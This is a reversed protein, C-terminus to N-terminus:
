YKGRIEKLGLANLRNYLTALSIGLNKAAARKGSVNDEHKSLEELIRHLENQLRSKKLDPPAALIESHIQNRVGLEQFLAPLYRSSIVTADTINGIFQLTNELERVNGPWYYNMFIEKIEASLQLPALPHEVFHKLLLQEATLIIDQPRTRLPPIVLQSASLRYFLDSRFREEAMRKELDSNTAAIIRIDVRNSKESGVPQIEGSQLVRLLKAQLGMDMDGIEDLFLTGKDALEVLGKKGGKRAGSFAGDVYGFLESELLPGPIAACNVAVFHQHMRPSALHMAHAFLEKGTGSEGRILVPIDAAGLKAALTKVSNIQPSHGVIDKFTYIASHEKHVKRLLNSYRIRYRGLKTQLAQVESVDRVISIGGVCSNGVLIPHMDTLYEINDFTRSAGLMAKQARMVSGLRSGPRAISLVKGVIDQFQMGTIREYSKNVYRVVENEDIILVGDHLSDFVSIFRRMNAKLLQELTTPPNQTLLSPTLQLLEALSLDTPSGSIFLDMLMQSDLVQEQGSNKNRYIIEHASNTLIKHILPLFFEDSNIHLTDVVWNM